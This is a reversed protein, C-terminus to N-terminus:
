ERVYTDMDSEHVMGMLRAYESEIVLYHDHTENAMREFVMRAVPNVLQAATYRLSKEHSEEENLAIEMARREDVHETMSKELQYMMVSTSHSPSNLFDDFSDFESGHYIRYLAEAHEREERALRDFVRRGDPDKTIQAARLYFEMLDKEMYVARKIAEQHNFEQTM